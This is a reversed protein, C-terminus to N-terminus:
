EFAERAENLYDPSHHAYLETTRKDAHGLYGGIQFLPVGKQAMWTGATHRLTHPTVDELGAFACATKFSNKVDNIKKGRRNIVYGLEPSRERERTLFWKLRRPMPIHPRRKSTQERGKPNFNVLGRDLDIQPWRLDLIAGKRAGTYLGIQIFLPLYKKSKPEMRAANLLAAAEQRTLWRDKSEPMSPLWVAVRRTLRGQNFEYNISAKLVGLERRITGDSVGRYSQYARCTQPTVDAIVNDEWFPTLADISYGIRAPAKPTRRM